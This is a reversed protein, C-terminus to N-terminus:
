KAGFVIATRENVKETTYAARAASLSSTTSLGQYSAGGAGGRVRAVASDVFAKVGPVRAYALAAGAVSGIVGIAIGASAGASLGPKPGAGPQPQPTPSFSMVPFRQPTRSPSRSPSVGPFAPTPSASEFVLPQTISPTPTMSLTVPSPSASPTAPAVPDIAGNVIAVFAKEDRWNDGGASTTALITGAPTASLFAYTTLPLDEDPIAPFDRESWLFGENVAIGWPYGTLYGKASTVLIRRDGSASDVILPASNYVDGDVMWSAINTGTSADFVFLASGYGGRALAIDDGYAGSASVVISGSSTALALWQWNGNTSVQNIVGPPPM